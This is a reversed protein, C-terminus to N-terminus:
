LCIKHAEQRTETRVGVVYIGDVINKVDITASSGHLRGLAVLSGDPTYLCAETLPESAAVFITGEAVTVTTTYDDAIIPAMGAAQPLKDKTDGQFYLSVPFYGDSGYFVADPVDIRVTHTGSKVEGLDILRTDIVDGPCWNSFSQWAADTKPRWGYIGNSQTNYKRFPECSTRGPKFTLALADDAYVFHNRRVYEEGNTGAGHNSMILVLRGDACDEPVEYTFTKVTKGLEDTCAENYNNMGRDARWDATRINIPVLVNTEVAGAAADDTVFYVSGQFVDNCGACGAVQENAAYPVGFVMLELWFDYKERLRKDRLINSMYNMDFSYPVMDPKKNKNMFPTIFRGIEMRLPDQDNYKVQYSESGKPILALNVSGIRDYNDCLAYIEVDLRLTEGLSNLVEDTLPKTCLYTYLRQCGEDPASEPIKDVLYGDYFTVKDYINIRQEASATSALAGAILFAM